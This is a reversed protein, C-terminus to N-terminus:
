HSDEALSLYMITLVMFLFAQLTIVLIHLIAWPVSMTWQAFWPVLAILLFVLEGAYMNGFLRLALSVPRAIEEVIRLPINFWFFAGGFPATFLEKIFGGVGKSSINFMMVLLMVTVGLAMPASLDTSPVVKMYSHGAEFLGTADELLWASFAPILDVPVLDMTNWLLVWVFITLALPRIVKSKGHYIDGVQTNVFEVLMEAINMMIGNPVGSTAKVAARRLVFCFLVGLVISWGLTDLNLSWFGADTCDGIHVHGNSDYCAGLNTLHHSIYGTPTLEGGAAM